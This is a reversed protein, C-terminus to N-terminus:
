SSRLQQALAQEHNWETAFVGPDDTGVVVTLNERQFLRLPHYALSSIQGIRLNSTPCCEIVAKKERLLGAVAHQLSKVEAIYADTYTILKRQKPSNLRALERQCQGGDVPHGYAALEEKAALLWHLTDRYEAVPEAVQQGRYQEPDVGLALAHGLRDVGLNQVEAIWRIASVLGKDAFTEGVHYLLDFKKFKRNDQLWSQFLDKKTKPPAGEEAYAFDLGAIVEALQPQKATFLRIWDYHTKALSNCRFLSFVLKTELALDANLRKVSHCLGKLYDYAEHAQFSAPILTRAEFYDLSQTDNMRRIIQEQIRFDDPTIPCLAIILNFNAQFRAFCNPRDFVFDSKLSEFGSPSEWYAKYDARRGWAKEYERAYWELQKARKQYCDKGIQWLDEASLCGHLHVHFDAKFM